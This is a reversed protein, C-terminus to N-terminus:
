LARIQLTQRNFFCHIFCFGILSNRKKSMKDASRTKVRNTNQLNWVCPEEANLNCNPFCHRPETSRQFIAEHSVLHIGAWVKQTYTHACVGVICFCQMHGQVLCPFRFDQSSDGFLLMLMCFQLCMWQVCMCLALSDQLTAASCSSHFCFKLKRHGGSLARRNRAPACCCKVTLVADVFLLGSFLFCSHQLGGGIQSTLCECTNGQLISKVKTAQM